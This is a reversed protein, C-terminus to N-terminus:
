ASNIGQEGFMRPLTKASWTFVAARTMWVKMDGHRPKQNIELGAEELTRLRGSPTVVRVAVNASHARVLDHLTGSGITSDRRPVCVVAASGKLAKRYADHWTEHGALIQAATMPLLGPRRATLAQAVRAIRDASDKPGIVLIRRM